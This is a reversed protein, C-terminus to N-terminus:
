KSPPVAESRTEFTAVVFPADKAPHMLNTTLILRPGQRRLYIRNGSGLFALSRGGAQTARARTQGLTEMLFGRLEEANEARKGTRQTEMQSQIQKREDDNEPVIPTFSAVSTGDDLRGIYLAEFLPAAPRGSQGVEWAQGILLTGKGLLESPTTGIKFDRLAQCLAEPKEGKKSDCHMRTLREDLVSNEINPFRSRHSLLTVFFDPERSSVVMLFRDLTMVQEPHMATPGQEGWLVSKIGPLRKDLDEKGPFEYYYITAKAAGCELSQFQKQKPNGYLSIGAEDKGAMDFQVGAQASVPHEGETFECVGSVEDKDILLEDFTLSRALAPSLLVVVSCAV